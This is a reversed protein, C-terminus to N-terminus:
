QLLGEKLFKTRLKKYAKMQKKNKWHKHKSPQIDSHSDIFGEWNFLREKARAKKDKPKLIMDLGKAEGLERIAKKSDSRSKLKRM